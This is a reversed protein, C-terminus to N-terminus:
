LRITFHPEKVLEKIICLFIYKMEYNEIWHEWFSDPWLYYFLLTKGTSHISCTSMIICSRLLVHGVCARLRTYVCLFTFFIFSCIVFHVAMLLPNTPLPLTPPYSPPWNYGTVQHLALSGKRRRRVVISGVKRQHSVSQRFM